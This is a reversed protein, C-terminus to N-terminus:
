TLLVGRMACSNSGLPMILSFNRSSQINLHSTPWTEEMTAESQIRRLTMGEAWQCRGELHLGKTKNTYWRRWAHWVIHELSAKGERSHRTDLLKHVNYFMRSITRSARESIGNLGVTVEAQAVRGHFTARSGSLDWWYSALSLVEYSDDKRRIIVLYTIYGYVRAWVQGMQTDEGTSLCIQKKPIAGKSQGGGIDM